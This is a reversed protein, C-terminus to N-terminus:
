SVQRMNRWNDVATACSIRQSRNAFHVHLYCSYRVCSGASSCFCQMNLLCISWVPYKLIIQRNLQSYIQLYWDTEINQHRCRRGDEVEKMCFHCVVIFTSFACGDETMTQPLCFVIKKKKQFV